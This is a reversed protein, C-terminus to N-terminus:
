QNIINIVRPGAGDAGDRYIEAEIRDIVIRIAYGQAKGVYGNPGIEEWTQTPKAAEYWDGSIPSMLVDSSGSKFGDAQTVGKQIGLAMLAQAAAKLAIRANHYQDELQRQIDQGAQQEAPQAEQPEAQAAQEQKRQNRLWQLVQQPSSYPCDDLMLLTALTLEALQKANSRMVADEVFDLGQERVWEGIQRGQRHPCALLLKGYEIWAQRVTPVDRKFGGGILSKIENLEM